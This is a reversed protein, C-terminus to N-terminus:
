KTKNANKKSDQILKQKALRLKESEVDEKHSQTREDLAQSREELAMKRGKIDADVGFQAVELVDLNSDEDVDKNENFGISLMAQKQIETKRREKEKLVILEKEREHAREAEQRQLMAAREDSKIKDKAAKQEQAFKRQQAADLLEEAENVSDSRMVKIIDSLDATQNQLAIQGLNEIAQKADYSKSVDTMFIGMTSSDLLGQDVDFMFLSMDDLIYSLRKPKYQTYAVKSTELLATLVNKKVANHLEFYPKIIHSAQVLNQRTNSVAERAQIQAEMQPTIGVSLGCKNEIYEAMQIYKQIDSALSLDIEKVMNTVDGSGKNGEENPNFWAIKNAEMFYQFKGTDIGASKPVSKINAALIKGKDSAMLLEIRYLIVDYYYQYSKMREMPSTTPSNLNDVAAGYYPLKCNYLNDLDKYQGQVPRSYAFIDDIIKYTEHAEPIWDWEIKLDGHTRNLKYNEDVMMMEPKGTEDSMYTLFGIRKLSKWTCHLVRLTYPEHDRDTTFTFDDTSIGSPNNHFTYIRDIEDDTLESGFQAVVESPTMRMEYVAWEGDEIFDLDPSMDYDFYLNNVVRVCPEKNIIGVWYIEEGAICSHKFGKNFKRDVDEKQLLYNMIHQCQIEAPDQHERVMYRRVEDPTQSELEDQLQGQLDQQEEPTLQKGGKQAAMMEAQLQLKIPMMVANTVYQKIRRTEEQEKRTTAEENVAYPKWSFPMGMEMGLLVKIKGSVIDRNTMNAPLKGVNAGYPQCVYEFEKMNVINNFLDYCVKKRRYPTIGNFGVFYNESFSHSDLLNGQDKYWQKDNADKERQTLRQNTNYLHTLM